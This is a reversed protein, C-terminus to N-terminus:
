ESDRNLQKEEIIEYGHLKVPRGEAIGKLGLRAAEGHFNIATGPKLELGYKKMWAEETKTDYGVPIFKVIRSKKHEQPSFMTFPFGWEWDSVKAQVEFKLRCHKVKKDVEYRFGFAHNSKAIVDFPGSFSIAASFDPDPSTEIRSTKKPDELLVIGGKPSFKVTIKKITVNEYRETGVSFVFIGSTPPIRIPEGSQDGSM